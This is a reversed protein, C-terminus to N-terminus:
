AYWELLPAETFWYRCNDLEIQSEYEAMARLKASVWSPEYPIPSLSQSKGHGRRYTLYTTVREAGFVQLALEGVLNHQDHGGDEVAPAFVVDWRERGEIETLLAALMEPDPADDRVPLQELDPFGLHRTAKQTEQERTAFTPGGRAEQVHSRFCTVVHPRYRLILFSAFLTEDDSHPALLLATM